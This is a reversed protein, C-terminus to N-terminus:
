RDQGTAEDVHYVGLDKLLAEETNLTARVETEHIRAVGAVLAQVVSAFATMSRMVYTSSAEVFIADHASEILPSGPNDTLVIVHAGNKRAWRAARVTDAPYRHIAMCVFCDGARIRRLNDTLLGVNGTVSDVEDRQMGLLYSLLYAPAHLKRLGMVHVRPADALQRTASDWVEADIRAFTRAINAQELAVTQQFDRGSGPPLRDLHDFRRLLQAQEHLRERCLQKLGRYGRLGLSASFRVVTAENVGVATALESITMFAVAEPDAVVREAVKRHAPSLVTEPKSLIAILEDYTTPASREDTRNTM